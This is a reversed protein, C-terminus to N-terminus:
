DTQDSHGPLARRTRPEDPTSLPTLGPRSLPEFSLYKMGTFSLAQSLVLLGVNLPAVELPSWPYFGAVHFKLWELALWHITIVTTVIGRLVPSSFDLRNARRISAGGRYVSVGANRWRFFFYILSVVSPTALIKFVRTSLVSAPNYALFGVISHRVITGAAGESYSVLRVLGVLALAACVAISVLAPINWRREM